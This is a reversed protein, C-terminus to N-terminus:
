KRNFWFSGIQKYVELADRLDLHNMHDPCLGFFHFIAEIM